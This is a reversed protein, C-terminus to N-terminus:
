RDWDLDPEVYDMDDRVTRLTLGSVHRTEAREVQVLVATINDGGGNENAREVLRACADDLSPSLSVIEM